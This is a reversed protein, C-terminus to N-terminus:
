FINPRMVERTVKYWKHMVKHGSSWAQHLRPVIYVKLGIVSHPIKSLQMGCKSDKNRLIYPLKRFHTWRHRLLRRREKGTLLSEENVDRNTTVQSSSESTMLKREDKGTFKAGELRGKNSGSEQADKNARRILSDFSPISRMTDSECSWRRVRAGTRKLVQIGYNQKGYVLLWVPDPLGGCLVM